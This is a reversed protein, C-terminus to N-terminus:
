CDKTAMRPHGGQKKCPIGIITYSAFLPLAAALPLAYRLQGNLPGALITILLMAMPLALVWAARNRTHFAYALLILFVWVYLAPSHVASVIPLSLQTEFFNTAANRVEAPQLYHVEFSTNIPEGQMYLYFIGRDINPGVLIWPYFYAYTNAITARLYTDPHKLGMSLWASFYNTRQDGQLMGQPDYLAEKVPDSLDPLYLAALDDYPLIAAISDHEQESVDDPHELLYRATQQFPVSLMEKDEKTNIGMAPWIIQFAISYVAACAVLTKLAATINKRKDGLSHLQKRRLFLILGIMTPVAVYFGNNRTFCLAISTALLLIWPTKKYRELRVAHGLTVMYLCFVAFFLTDKMAAQAFAGWGPYLAFFALSVICLWRPTGMRVIERMSLSFAFVSAASQTTVILLLGLNDSYLSRGLTMLGAYMLNMVVPHHNELPADTIFQNMSRAGDWTLSGPFYIILYPLWCLAITLVSIALCHDGFFSNPSITSWGHERHRDFWRFLLTLLAFGVAWLLFFILAFFPFSPWHLAFHDETTAQSFVFGVVNSLAIFFACVLASLSPKRRDISGMMTNNGNQRAFCISGPYPIM